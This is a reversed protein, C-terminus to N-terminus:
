SPPSGQDSTAASSLLLSLIADFNCAAAVGASKAAQVATALTTSLKSSVIVLSHFRYTTLTASPLFEVSLPHPVDLSSGLCISGAYEVLFAPVGTTRSLIRRQSPLSQARGTTRLRFPGPM